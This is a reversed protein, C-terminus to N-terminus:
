VQIALVKMWWIMEKAEAINKLVVTDWSYPVNGMQWGPERHGLYNGLFRKM